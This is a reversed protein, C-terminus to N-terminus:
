VKIRERVLRRSIDRHTVRASSLMRQLDGKCVLEVRLTKAEQKVKRDVTKANTAVILRNFEFGLANEYFPKASYVERVALVSNMMGTTTFKCQILINDRASIIADAGHDPGEATLKPEGDYAKGLIEASFAEFRKWGLQDVDDIKLSSHGGSGGFTSGFVGSMEEPNVIEPTVVADKLAIKQQLLKDLNEDFSTVDEAPHVLVPLYVSVNKKQGIRYVRDTAQAEKAPNWHRELHIVNNAGVVTLGTGAAIPSMIVVGFGDQAEFETLISRRTAVDKRKAVARTDGNVISVSIGFIQQCALSLFAQLRKNICFIIVKESRESIQKLLAFTQELKGSREILGLAEDRSAPAPLIGGDLLNPHLSVDRLRHLGALVVSGVEGKTAGEQVLDIVMEYAQQQLTPMCCRLLPMFQSDNVCNKSGSFIRKEPLGDLEGEKIRRLMLPGVKSRLLQGQELRVQARKEDVADNIPKIYIQRFEQWSGLYAPVATDMLSWFDRLSNEVPTGTTMLKFRAKLGRAAIAAVTNPNKIHQAEDFVAISWDVRCLSFQYDRLTEYTTLVLRKPKDLRESLYDKGVKLSYRISGLGTNSSQRIELGAGKLRFRPLDASAQLKVIDSFPNCGENFVKEVEEEWNELLTLPAVILVPRDMDDYLTSQGLYERIAALSMFTKGLGMDDALLAGNKSLDKIELNYTITLLGLIWRIGTEQYSFPEFKYASWDIEDKYLVSKVDGVDGFRVEIDNDFVDLVLQSFNEEDKEEPPERESKDTTEPSRTILDEINELERDVLHADSVDIREDKFEVQALGKRVSEEFIEHFYNLDDRSKIINKLHTCPRLTAAAQEFWSIGTEDTDGFFKPKFETAGQVRLSYGEDLDVLAGDLFASPNKIFVEVQEPSIKQNALIERTAQVCREDLVLRNNNVRLSGIVAGEELQWLRRQISDFVAGEGYDPMLLLSGDDMEKASVRVHEVDKVHLEEFHALDIKLGNSKCRQLQAVLRLNTVENRETSALGEHVRVSEFAAYEEATMLYEEDSSLCILPGRVGYNPVQEGPSTEPILQVRFNEQHALGDIRVLYKGPFSDPLSLFHRTDEDLQVALASEILFGNGIPEALGEEALIQLQIYQHTALAGAKGSKAKGLLDQDAVFVIGDNDALFTFCEEADYRGLLESIFGRVEM